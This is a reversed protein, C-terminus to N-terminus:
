FQRTFKKRIYRSRASIKWGALVRQRLICGRSLLIGTQRSGPSGIVRM